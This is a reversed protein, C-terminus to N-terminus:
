GIVKKSKRRSLTKMKRSLKSVVRRSTTEPFRLIAFRTIKDGRILINFPIEPIDKRSITLDYKVDDLIYDYVKKVHEDNNILERDVFPGWSFDIFVYGRPKLNNKMDQYIKRIGALEQHKYKRTGMKSINTHYLGYIPCHIPYIADYKVQLQNWARYQKGYPTDFPKDDNSFCRTDIYDIRAINFKKMISPLKEEDYLSEYKTKPTKISKAIAVDDHENHCHCAILINM